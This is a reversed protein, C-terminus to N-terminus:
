LDESCIHHKSRQEASFADCEQNKKAERLFLGLASTTQAGNVVSFNKLLVDNGSIMFDEAIITIGNNYYFFNKREEADLLTAYINKNVGRNGLYERINMDFIPYGKEISERYLRYISVVPTLM